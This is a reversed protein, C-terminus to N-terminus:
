LSHVLPGLPRMTFGTFGGIGTAGSSNLIYWSANGPRFVAPDAVGDGDYDGSMPTDGTAGYQILTQGTPASVGTLGTSNRIYWVASSPRFFTADSRGDGDFDGAVPIDNAQGYTIRTQGGVGGPSDLGASNM